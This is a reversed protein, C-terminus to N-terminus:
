EEKAHVKPATPKAHLFLVSFVAVALMCFFTSAYYPYATPIFREYENHRYPRVSVQTSEDIVSLGPRRYHLRFKFIGHVDPIKFSTHFHGPEDTELNVRYYPDLMVFELQVKDNAAPVYPVWKDNVYEELDVSYQVDEMVRYVLSNRGIEPAPFMSKPLEPRVPETVQHEPPTGSAYAHYINKARLVGAKQFTWKLIATAFEENGSRISESEDIHMEFAENSLMWLSGLFTARANNRAQVATVLSIDTGIGFPHTGPETSPDASYAHLGASLAKFALINDPNVSAGIGQFVISAASLNGSITTSPFRNNTLIRSASNQPRVRQASPPTLFPVHNFHDVVRSKNPDFDVGCELALDRVADSIVSAGTVFVNGGQQLFYMLDHASLAGFHTARPALIVINDYIWEGYHVVDATKDSAQALTIQFGLDAFCHCHM